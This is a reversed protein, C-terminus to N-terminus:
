RNAKSITQLQTLMHQIQQQNQKAKPKAREDEVVPFQVVDGSVKWGSQATIFGDLAEGEELNLITAMFKKEASQYTLLLIKTVFARIAEQFGNIEKLFNCEPVHTWFQAFRATELLNSLEILTHVAGKPEEKVLHPPLLYLSLLFNTSPCGPLGLSMLAKILIHVVVDYNFREPFFQYLKLVALNSEFNYTNQECQFYVYSELESLAEVNYRNKEVFAQSEQPNRSWTSPAKNTKPKPTSSSPTSTTDAASTTTAESPAPTTQEPTDAM